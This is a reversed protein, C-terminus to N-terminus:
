YFNQGNENDCVSNVKCFQVLNMKGLKLGGKQFRLNEEDM